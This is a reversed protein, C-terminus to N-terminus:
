PVSIVCGKERKLFPSVVLEEPTLKLKIGGSESQRYLRIGLDEVYRVWSESLQEGERILDESTIIVQPDVGLLFEDTGSYSGVHRGMVMVDASIDVGRRVLDLEDNMGLDGVFLIRWGNQTYRLVLSQDDALSREEERSVRLVELKAGGALDFSGGERAQKSVGEKKALATKLERFRKGRSDEVPLLVTKPSFNEMMVTVGSCHNSDAHTVVIMRPDISLNRFCSFLGREWTRESGGDILLHGGAAYSCAGGKEVEFIVLEDDDLAKLNPRFHGGPVGEFFEAMECAGWAVGANVQNVPESLGVSSLVLSLMGMGLIVIVLPMLCVTAFVGIPTVLQFVMLMIPLSGLWAAGSVSIGSVLNRRVRVWFRQSDTLLSKPIFEDAEVWRECFKSVVGGWLAISFLVVYSLQFGVQWLQFPDWLLVVVLSVGLSNLLSTQRYSLFGAIVIAAMVVARVAPPRFGTVFAYALMAGFVILLAPRRLVGFARLVAWTILGVLGVHLGSVAFVHMTGSARFSEFDAGRAKEGLIIGRLAAVERERDMIGRSLREGVWERASESWRRIVMRRDWGEQKEQDEWLFVGIVGLRRLKEGLDQEGFNRLERTRQIKGYLCFRDGPRVEGRQKVLRGVAVQVGRLGSVRKWKGQEFRRAEQIELLEYPWFLAGESVVDVEVYRGQWIEAEAIKEKQEGYRLYGWVCIAVALAFWLGRGGGLVLLVVACVGWFAAWGFWGEAGFIGAIVGCGIGLAPARWIPELFGKRV